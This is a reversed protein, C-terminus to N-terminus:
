SLLAELDRAQLIKYQGEKLSGLKLNGIQVRRLDDGRYGLAAL